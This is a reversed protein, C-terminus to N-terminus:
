IQQNQPKEHIDLVHARSYQKALITVLPTSDPPMSDPPTNESTKYLQRNFESM